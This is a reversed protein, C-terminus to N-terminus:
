DELYVPKKISSFNLNSNQFFPKAISSMEMSNLTEVFTQAFQSWASRLQNDIEVNSSPLFLMEARNLLSSIVSCAFKNQLALVLSKNSLSPTDKLLLQSLEVVAKLNCVSIQQTVTESLVMLGEEPQDRKIFHPLNKMITVLVAKSHESNFIPLCRAVLKRGKRISMMYLFSDAHNDQTGLNLFLQNIKETRDEYLKKRSEEPLALVRKELDDIDLLIVYAKEIEMLMQRYRYVDRGSSKGGQEDNHAMSVLDIVQRPNHVSSTSVRGLSGEFHAPTYAKTEIKALAPIILKPEDKNEKNKKKREEASKRLTYRVYYYDDVYPNDTHLQLLQIKIVWEKEKQTMIGAYEDIPHRTDLRERYNDRGRQQQYNNKNQNNFQRMQHPPRHIRVNDNPHPIRQGNINPVSSGVIRMLNPPYILNPPFRPVPHNRALNGILSNCPYPLRQKTLADIAAQSPQNHGTPTSNRNMGLHMGPMPSPGHGNSLRAQMGQLLQSSPGGNQLLHQSPLIGPPLCPSGRGNMSAITPMSNLSGSMKNTDHANNFVQSTFSSPASGVPPIPAAMSFPSVHDLNQNSSTPVDGRMHRELEEATVVNANSFLKKEVEALTHPRTISRSSQMMQKSNQLSTQGTSKAFNFFSQLSDPPNPKPQTNGPQLIEAPPSWWISHSNPSVKPVDKAYSSNSVSTNGSFRKESLDLREDEEEDDDVVLNYISEELFEEQIRFVDEFNEDLFAKPTIEQSLKSSKELGQNEIPRNNLPFGAQLPNHDEQWEYADDSLGFTEDNRLDNDEEDEPAEILENDYEGLKGAGLASFESEYDLISGEM